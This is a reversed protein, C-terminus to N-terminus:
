LVTATYLILSLFSLSLDPYTLTLIHGDIGTLTMEIFM